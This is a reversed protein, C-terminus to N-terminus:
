GFASLADKRVAALNGSVYYHPSLSHELAMNGTEENVVFTVIAYSAAGGRAVVNYLVPTDGIEVKGEIAARVDFSHAGNEAIQISETAIVKGAQDLVSVEMPRAQAGERMSSNTSAFVTFTNHKRGVLAKPGLLVIPSFPKNETLIPLQDYLVSAVNGSKAHVYSLLHEQGFYTPGDTPLSCRAVVLLGAQDGELAPCTAESIEQVGDIPIRAFVPDHHILAGDRFVRLDVLMGDKRLEVPFGEGLRVTNRLYARIRAGGEACSPIIFQGARLGRYKRIDFGKWQQWYARLAAEGDARSLAEGAEAVLLGTLSKSPQPVPQSLMRGYGAERLLNGFDHCEASYERDGSDKLTLVTSESGDWNDTQEILLVADFGGPLGALLAQCRSRDLGYFTHKLVLVKPEVLDTLGASSGDPFTVLAAPSDGAAALVGSRVNEKGAARQVLAMLGDDVAGHFVMVPLARRERLVRDIVFEAVFGAMEANGPIVNRLDVTTADPDEAVATGLALDAADIQPWFERKQRYVLPEINGGDFLREAVDRLVAKTAFDSTHGGTAHIDLDVAGGKARWAEVLPVVQEHYVGHDDVCAHMYLRPLPAASADRAAVANSVQRTYVRNAESMPEGDPVIFRVHEMRGQHEACTDLDIHPSISIIGRANFRLGFKLAGTAGMSSGAMVVGDPGVGDKEMVQAIIAEMAREVFFDGKEGTYYTGNQTHGFQDCLFLCGYETADGFMRLRHFYGQYFEKYAKRDGWDGFFATFHVLLRGTEPRPIHVYRFVRGEADTYSQIAYRKDGVAVTSQGGSSTASQAAGTAATGGGAPTASTDRVEIPRAGAESCDGVYAWLLSVDTNYQGVAPEWKLTKVGLPEFVKRLDRSYKYLGRWGDTGDWLEVCIVLKRSTDVMNRALTAIAEDPIHDILSMTLTADWTKHGENWVNADVVAYNIAPNKERAYKIAVENVDIGRLKVDPHAAHVEALNRGSNCGIELLSQAGYLEIVEAVWRSRIRGLPDNYYNECDTLAAWYDAALKSQTGPAVIRRVREEWMQVKEVGLRDELARRISSFM